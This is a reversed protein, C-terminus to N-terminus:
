IDLTERLQAPELELRIVRRGIKQLAELDGLSEANSMVGFSYPHGTVPIDEYRDSTIQVFLGKNPGGKHLQGTSHLFRPGYGLTTALKYNELVKRRIGNLVSDTEPTQQIYAMLAFYDGENAQSLLTSISKGTEAIPLKGSDAYQKLLRKTADKSRQVDPQNFPHVGILVGSVAIAFEWLYFLAGLELRDDMEMVMVPHGASKVEGVFSDDASNNDGKLRIYVFSRDNGYSRAEVLPEGAIPVLGKGGKGTSEAILQEAWLGFSVLSPSTFVTVKDRGNKAMGGLYAGLRCGENEKDKVMSSCRKRMADASFLLEDIDIGLTVAPVLGFFSLVSYRGGIDEPNLFIRRFKDERALDELPSGPDTIAAFHQGANGRSSDSEAAYFYDFLTRTEATTGSKSSVLFLTKESHISERVSNVTEPIISDLVTLRPYGPKQGLVQNLVEAGLSSGGMGLLVVDSIGDQQLEESFAALTPVIEHMSDMVDLWGLRDTIETPQSSWLTHDKRWIREAVHERALWNLTEEFIKEQKRLGALTLNM